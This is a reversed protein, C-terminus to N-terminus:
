SLIIGGTIGLWSPDTMIITKSAMLNMVVVAVVFIIINLSPVNKFIM